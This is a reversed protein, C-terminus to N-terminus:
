TNQNRDSLVAAAVLIQLQRMLRGCFHVYMIVAGSLDEKEWKKETNLVHHRLNAMM